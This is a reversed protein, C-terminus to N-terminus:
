LGKLWARAADLNDFLKVPYPFDPMLFMRAHSLVSDGRAVIAMVLQPNSFAGGIAKALVQDLIVAIDAVNEVALFDNISYRLTDYREDRQVVDVSAVLDEPALTGSYKRWVGRPEWAIEYAM